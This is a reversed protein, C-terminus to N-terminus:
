VHARGIEPPTASVDAEARAPSSAVSKSGDAEGDSGGTEGWGRFAALLHGATADGPHGWLAAALAGAAVSAPAGGFVLASDKEAVVGHERMYPELAEDINFRFPGDLNVRVSTGIAHLSVAPRLEGAIAPPIDRFASAALHLCLEHLAHM